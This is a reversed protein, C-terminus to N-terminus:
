ALRLELAVISRPPVTVASGSGHISVAFPAPQVETPHDFTNSATINAHTLITGKGEAIDGATLSLKGSLHADLSPNTLTVNLTNGRISASGSLAPITAAADSRSPVKLDECRIRLKAQQAGMHVRYMEFVSFVPTRVYQDGKALFLSHICNITQAVNAMVIKDAHRNFIDLTLATHMADRLTLPQSLLYNPAIEEGVPYWVGWEDVVLKTHHTPDYKGMIEWHQEIVNEIRVGGRLVDFWGRADFIGVREQSKRFDTYYHISLGDVRSRHGGTSMAEFFSRTWDLDLDKAHGRPGVAVLVPKPEYAPFQTVFRRYLNAYEGPNMDGGCGWSENGVGWWKVAFPDKDGNAAREDALTVTGAPANCYSVWDHFEGPSGSNMNAALYPEAGTLRCLRIFEHIGFRNTETHDYGAPMSAQWYNYTRPRRSPDGIGDRWHYADAFCGGPWRLNPARLHKLDEVFQKRIGNINSIKSETGVWVGDYIVGGLHEIFHGYLNPSIQPGAPQPTIEIEADAALATRSGTLIAATACASIGLFRRRDM